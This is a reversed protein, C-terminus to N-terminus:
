GLAAIDEGSLTGRTLLADAILEIRRRAWPLRVLAEASGRMRMMEAGIRLPGFRRALGKRVMEIDISDTGPEISGFFLREAEPGALCLVCLTELGIDRPPRYHGRLLHPNDHEISVCIIPIAFTIAAVAHGSEHWAYRELDPVNESRRRWSDMVLGAHPQLQLM